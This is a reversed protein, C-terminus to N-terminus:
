SFSSYTWIALEAFEVIQDTFTIQTKKIHQTFQTQIPSFVFGERIVTKRLCSINIIPNGQIRSRSKFSEEGESLTISSFFIM